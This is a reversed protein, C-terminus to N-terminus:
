GAQPGDESLRLKEESSLTRNLGDLVAAAHAAARAASKRSGILPGPTLQSRMLEHLRAYYWRASELSHEPDKTRRLYKLVNGAAFEPAWGHAVIDDWPQRAAGYHDQRPVGRDDLHVSM